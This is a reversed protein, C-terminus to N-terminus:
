LKEKYYSFVPWDTEQGSGCTPCEEPYREWTRFEECSGTEYNVELQKGFIKPELYGTIAKVSESVLVGCLMAIGPPYALTPVEFGSDHFGKFQAEFMPAHKLYHIHMCDFCGSVGPNVGFVRGRTVQGGAFICPIDKTVCAKNVRRFALFQPEDITSIVLDSGDIVDLLDSYTEIKRQVTSFNIDSNTLKMRENAVDTKFRGIDPETYFFQRNLNSLEVKDYDLAKINGIGLGSLMMLVNTGGGGLGLLTVKSKKLTDQVTSKDSGLKTYHSYYNVNGIYRNISLDENEYQSEESSELSGMENLQHIANLVDTKTIEPFRNTIVNTVESITKTGDMSNVLTWMHSHPDKIDFTIGVQAGIRFLEDSLQYFPYIKKIRPKINLSYSMATSETTTSESVTLM